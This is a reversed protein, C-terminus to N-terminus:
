YWGLPHIPENSPGLHEGLWRSHASARGPRQASPRRLHGLHPQWSGGPGPTTLGLPVAVPRHTGRRVQGSWRIWTGAATREFMLLRSFDAQTMTTTSAHLTPRNYGTREILMEASARGSWWAARRPAALDAAIPSLRARFSSEQENITIGPRAPPSPVALDKQLHDDM